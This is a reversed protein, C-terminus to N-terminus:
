RGAREAGPKKFWPSLRPQALDFGLYTEKAVEVQSLWPTL